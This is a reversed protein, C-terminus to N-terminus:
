WLMGKYLHVRGLQGWTYGLNWISALTLNTWIHFDLKTLSILHRLPGVVSAWPKTGMFATQSPSWRRRRDSPRSGPEVEWAAPPHRAKEVARSRQWMLYRWHSEPRWAEPSVWRVEAQFHPPCRPLGTLFCVSTDKKKRDHCSNLGFLPKFICIRSQLDNNHFSETTQHKIGPVPQVTFIIWGLTLQIVNFLLACCKRSLAWICGQLM